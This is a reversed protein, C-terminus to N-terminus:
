RSQGGLRGKQPNCLLEYMARTAGERRAAADKKSLDFTVKAIFGNPSSAAASLQARIQPLEAMLHERASVVCDSPVSYLYVYWRGFHSSYSAQLLSLTGRAHLRKQWRSVWFEDRWSFWLEIEDFQPIGQLAESIAQAGIPYSFGKPLKEKRATKILDGPM